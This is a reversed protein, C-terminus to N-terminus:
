RAMQAVAHLALLAKSASAMALGDPPQAKVFYRKLSGPEFPLPVKLPEEAPLSLLIWVVQCQIFVHCHFFFLVTFAQVSM